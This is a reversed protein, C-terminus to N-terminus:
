LADLIHGLRYDHLSARTLGPQLRATMSRATSITRCRTANTEPIAAAGSAPPSRSWPRWTAGRVLRSSGWSLALAPVATGVAGHSDARVGAEGAGSGLLWSCALAVACGKPPALSNAMLFTTTTRAPSVRDCM